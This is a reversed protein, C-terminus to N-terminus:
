PVQWRRFFEIVRRNVQEAKGIHPQHGSGAIPFLAVQPMLLALRSFSTPKLTRDREGWILLTPTKIDPLIPSLDWISAGLYIIKPSARLYDGAIAHRVQSSFHHTEGMDLDFILHIAWSPVRQFAWAALRPRRNILRMVIPLQAPSFYPDILAMSAVRQPHRHAYLLSLFGGLSHGVLHVPHDFGLSDLWEEFTQYVAQASYQSIAEPKPSDGHGPLDPAYGQWGNRAVEGLLLQWHRNSAAMGHVLIVPDGNGETIYSLSAAPGPIHM